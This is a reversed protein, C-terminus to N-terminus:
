IMGYEAPLSKFQKELIENGIRGFSTGKEVVFRRPDFQEGMFKQIDEM